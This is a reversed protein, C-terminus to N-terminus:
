DDGDGGDLIGTVFKDLKEDQKLANIVDQVDLPLERVSCMFEAPTYEFKGDSTNHEVDQGDLLHNVFSDHFDEISFQGGDDMHCTVVQKVTIEVKMHGVKIPETPLLQDHTLIATHLTLQDQTTYTRTGTVQTIRVRNGTDKRKVIQGVVYRATM